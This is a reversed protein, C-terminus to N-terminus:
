SGGPIESGSNVFRKDLQNTKSWVSHSSELNKDETLSKKKFGGPILRVGQVPLM